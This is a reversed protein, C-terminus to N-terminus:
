WARAPPARAYVLISSEGLQEGGVDRLGNRPVLELLVEPKSRSRKRACIAWGSRRSITAVQTVFLTM